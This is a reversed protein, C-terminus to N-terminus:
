DEPRLLRRLAAEVDHERMLSEGVLFARAGAMGLRRLDAADRIGSEAVLLAESPVQPALRETAALDTEFTRLNRNNVGILDAGLDVAIELEAEDHVEVLVDLDRGRAHEHLARLAVPELASVILLIADAGHARAEDIQYGDVVFDKRIVPLDVAARAAELHALCGGFFEADTLVSLATAGGAEYARACAQPDFDPRIEGKSPSRRKMEAIVAPGQADALASRFGRVSGAADARAAMEAPSVRARGERVEEAKRALIEDLITM